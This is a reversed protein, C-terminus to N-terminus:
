DKGGSYVQKESIAEPSLSRDIILLVFMSIPPFIFLLFVSIIIQVVLPRKSKFVLYIIFPTLLYYALTAVKYSEDHLAKYEPYDVELPIQSLNIFVFALSILMLLPKIIRFLIKIPRKLRM